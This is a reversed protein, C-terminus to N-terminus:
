ERRGEIAAAHARIDKDRSGTRLARRIAARAEAVRGTQFYAWALADDTFIDHRGAGEALRVAEDLHRTHGALFRALKSPEPADVRWAAEALRYQLEAADPRGVKALLDGAFAADAPTPSSDLRKMVLELAATNHGRAAEVRALGDLAFPHGPFVFDAHEYERRAADLSGLELYLHGLQAHHWALSEADQASTADTAMQMLRLAGDLDGQLERAYSARAYAAANPRLATMRDFADFAEPYDGLEIHADGLVGYVWADSARMARCREAEGIADRFRHQSLYVAALMRRADYDDRDHDLVTKLAFEAHMALGANGNVRTQRLLADALAIAATSDTPRAALRATMTKVTRDLDARSTASMRTDIAGAAASRAAATSISSGRVWAVLGVILIPLAIGITTTLRRARM